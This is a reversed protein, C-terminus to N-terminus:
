RRDFVDDGGSLVYRDTAKATLLPRVGLEGHEFVEAHDVSVETGAPGNLNM